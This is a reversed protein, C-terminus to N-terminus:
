WPLLLQDVSQPMGPHPSLLNSMVPHCPVFRFDLRAMPPLVASTDPHPPLTGAAGEAPTSSEVPTIGRGELRRVVSTMQRTNLDLIQGDEPADSQSM